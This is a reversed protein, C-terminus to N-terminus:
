LIFANTSRHRSGMYANVTTPFPFQEHFDAIGLIHKQGTESLRDYFEHILTRLLYLNHPIDWQAYPRTSNNPSPRGYSTYKVHGATTELAYAFSHSAANGVLALCKWNCTTTEVVKCSWQGVKCTGLPAGTVYLLDVAPLAKATDIRPLTFPRSWSTQWPICSCYTSCLESRSFAVM